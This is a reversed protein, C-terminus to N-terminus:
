SVLKCWLDHEVAETIEVEVFEGVPLEAAAISVLSDIEPVDVASRAITEDEEGVQVLLTKLHDVKSQMLTESIEQQVEM